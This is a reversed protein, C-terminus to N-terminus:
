VVDNQDAKGVDREKKLRKFLAVKQRSFKDVLKYQKYKTKQKKKESLVFPRVTALSKKLTLKTSPSDEIWKVEIM